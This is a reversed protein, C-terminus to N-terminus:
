FTKKVESVGINLGMDSSVGLSMQKNKSGAVMRMMAVLMMVMSIAVVMMVVVTCHKTHYYCHTLCYYVDHRAHISCWGVDSRSDTEDDNDLHAVFLSFSLHSQLHTFSLTPKSFHSPYVHHHPHTKYNNSNHTAIPKITNTTSTDLLLFSWFYKLVLKISQYRLRIFSLIFMLCYWFLFFDEVLVFFFFECFGWEVGATQQPHSRTTTPHTTASPNRGRIPYKM